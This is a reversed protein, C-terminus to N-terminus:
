QKWEGRDYQAHKLLARVFIIQWGYEIKVVLRYAGGKINFITYPEVYDAHPYARRVDVLSKWRASKAVKYWQALPGQLTPDAAVADRWAAKSIM